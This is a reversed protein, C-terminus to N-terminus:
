SGHNKRFRSPTYGTMKRFVNTFHSHSQYGVELAIQTMSMESFKLLQKAKEIRGIVVYQHPPIGFSCNFMRVFHYSSLGALNSLTDISIDGVLNEYIYERIRNQLHRPLGSGALKTDIRISVYKTLLHVVMLQTLTEAYMKGFPSKNKAEKLLELSINRLLEDHIALANPLEISAFDRNLAQLATKHFLDMDLIINVAQPKPDGLNKARWQWNLTSGPRVLHGTNPLLTVPTWKPGNLQYNAKGHGTILFAMGFDPKAPPVMSGDNDGSFEYHNLGTGNWKEKPIHLSTVAPV